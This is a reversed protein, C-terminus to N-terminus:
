KSEIFVLVGKQELISLLKQCKKRLEKHNNGDLYLIKLNSLNIITTPLNDLHNYSLFLRKITINYLPEIIEIIQNLLVSDDYDLGLNLNSFDLTKPNKVNHIRKCIRETIDDDGIIKEKIEFFTLHLIPILFNHSPYIFKLLKKTCNPNDNIVFNKCWNILTKIISCRLKNYPLNEILFNINNSYTKIADIDQNTLKPKNQKFVEELKFLEIKLINECKLHPNDSLNKYLSFYNENEKTLISSIAILIMPCDLYDTAHFLLSLEPIEFINLLYNNFTSKLNTVLRSTLKFQNKYKTYIFEALKKTGEEIGFEKKFEYAKEMLSVIKEFINNPLSVFVKNQDDKVIKLQDLITNSIAAINLSIEIENM